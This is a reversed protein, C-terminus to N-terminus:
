AADQADTVCLPGWAWTQRDQDVVRRLNYTARAGRPIQNVQSATYAWTVTGESQDIADGSLTVDYGGPSTGLSLRSSRWRIELAFTSGSLDEPMSQPGFGWILAPSTDGRWITRPIRPPIDASM